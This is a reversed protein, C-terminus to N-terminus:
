TRRLGGPWYNGFQEGCIGLYGGGTGPSGYYMYMKTIAIQL